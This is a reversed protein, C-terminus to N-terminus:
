RPAALSILGCGYGRARGVGHTLAQRLLQPDTVRMLGELTVTQLTVPKEASDSRWFRLRKRDRIEVAFPSPTDEPHDTEPMPVSGPLLEFGWQHAREAFWAIQNNAGVLPVVRGRVKARTEKAEPGPHQAKVPNITVRFVYRQGLALRNLLPLYDKTEFSRDSEPWGYFDTVHHLDPKDPSVIWLVPRRHDESDLRWLVRPGNAADTAPTLPFAQMVAAHIKQPNGLFTVAGRRRPNIFTRTLYMDDM